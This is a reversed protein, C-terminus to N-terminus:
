DNGRERIRALIASTSDGRYYPTYQFTVGHRFAFTESMCVQELYSAHPWDDGHVVVGIDNAVIYPKIDRSNSIWADDVHRCARVIELRDRESIIPVRKYTATLADGNVVVLLRDGYFRARRLLEVHGRHFLDFVGVVLVSSATMHDETTTDREIPTM